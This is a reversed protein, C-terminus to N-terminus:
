TRAALDEHRTSLSYRLVKVEFKPIYVLLFISVRLTLHDSFGLHALDVGFAKHARVSPGLSWITQPRRLLLSHVLVFRRRIPEAFYHICKCLSLHFHPLSISQFSDQTLRLLSWITAFHFSIPGSLPAPAGADEAASGRSSPPTSHVGVALLRSCGGRLLLSARGGNVDGSPSSPTTSASPGTPRTTSSTSPPRSVRSPATCASSGLHLPFHLHFLSFLFFLTVLSFSIFSILSPLFTPLLHFAPFCLYM